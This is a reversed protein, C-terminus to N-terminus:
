AATCLKELTDLLDRARVPKSIYSDMGCALCRERDGKMAHATMAVIPIHRGSGREIRRIEETAEYGTMQPMQVDMLIIDFCEKSWAEIAERGNAALTVRHGQKELIRLALRQNVPNDEALLVRSARAAAPAPMAGSPFSNPPWGQAPEVTAEVLISFRFCSGVGIRSEVSIAGGMLTVLRSSITLGLGTGGFRRTMSGDAQSFAEFVSDQKELPIGMGTDHVAFELLVRGEGAPQGSIEMWVRGNETFKIANGVLNILIQRLRIPDGIVNGPVEPRIDFHLGLGKQNARLEMLRMTEEVCDRLSFAIVELDLKGAEIKSFDLIDNIITLLADASSKVTNLYEAQEMSLETDLALETMGLIGNMPTRIEHSMNALFESKARSGEEAKNKAEVLQTNLSRLESTRQSVEDELSERHRGLDHDRRQIESLMENFGDILTGLEDDTQKRARIGYNKLRAVSKATQVLHIVPDSIFRQLRTALVFAFAGACALLGLSIGVSSVLRDHLDHLDSELYISGLLQGELVVPQFVTLRGTEFATRYVSPVAPPAKITGPRLYSAFVKGDASYLYGAALAPQARLGQLLDRASEHDNFSLAATSNQGVMRALLELEGSMNSRMGILSSAFLVGCVLLLAATVTLMIIGQLKHKISLKRLARLPGAM